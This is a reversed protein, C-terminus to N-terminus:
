SLSFIKLIFFVFVFESAVLIFRNTMQSSLHSVAIPLNVAPVSFFTVMNKDSIPLQLCFLLNKIPFFIRRARISVNFPEIYFQINLLFGSCAIYPLSLFFLVWTTTQYM